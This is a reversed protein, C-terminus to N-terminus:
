TEVSRDAAEIVHHTSRHFINLFLIINIIVQKNKEELNCIKKSSKDNEAQLQNLSKKSKDNEM